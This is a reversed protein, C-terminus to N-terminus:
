CTVHISTTALGTLIPTYISLSFILFLFFTMEGSGWRWKSSWWWLLSRRGHGPHWKVGPESGTPEGGLTM